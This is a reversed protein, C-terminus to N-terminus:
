RARTITLETIKGDELIVTLTGAKETSSGIAYSGRAKGSSSTTGRLTLKETPPHERFSREIEVKGNMTRSDAGRYRLKANPEFLKLMNQYSGIEVARNHAEVYDVMASVALQDSSQSIPLILEKPKSRATDNASKGKGFEVVKATVTVTMSGFVPYLIFGDVDQTVNVLARSKRNLKAKNKLSKIAVSLRPGSGLGFIRFGTDSAQIHQEVVRYNDSDLGVETANIADLRWSNVCGTLGVSIAALLIFHVCKVAGRNLRM